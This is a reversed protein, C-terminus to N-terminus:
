DLKFDLPPVVVGYLPLVPTNTKFGAEFQIGIAGGVVAALQKEDLEIIADEDQHPELLNATFEEWESQTFDYGAEKVIQLWEEKSQVSQIKLRFKEDSALREYFAKVNALSM